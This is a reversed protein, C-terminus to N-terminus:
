LRSVWYKPSTYQPYFSNLLVRCRYNFGDLVSEFDLFSFLIWASLIAHIVFPEGTIDIYQYAGLIPMLFIPGFLTLQQSLLSMLVIQIICWKFSGMSRASHVQTCSSIYSLNGVDIVHIIRLTIFCAVFNLAEMTRMYSCFINSST